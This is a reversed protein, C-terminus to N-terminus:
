DAASLRVDADLPMAHGTGINFGRVHHPVKAAGFQMVRAGGSGPLGQSSHGSSSDTRCRFHMISRPQCQM